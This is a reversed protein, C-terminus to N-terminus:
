ALREVTAGGLMITELSIAPATKFGAGPRLEQFVSGRAVGVDDKPRGKCALFYISISQEYRREEHRTAM